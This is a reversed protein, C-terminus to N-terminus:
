RQRVDIRGPVHTVLLRAGLVINEIDNVLYLTSQQFDAAAPAGVLVCVVSTNSSEVTWHPAHKQQQTETNFHEFLRELTRNVGTIRDRIRQIVGAPISASVPAM